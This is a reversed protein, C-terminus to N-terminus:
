PGNHAKRSALDMLRSEHTAPSWMRGSILLATRTSGSGRIIDQPTRDSIVLMSLGGSTQNHYGITINYSLNPSVAKLQGAGNRGIILGTIGDGNV